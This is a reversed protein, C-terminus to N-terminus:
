GLDCVVRGRSGSGDGPTPWTGPVLGIVLWRSELGSRLVGVSREGEIGTPGSVEM